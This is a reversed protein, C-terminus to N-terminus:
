LIKESIKKSSFICLYNLSNHSLLTDLIESSPNGPYGTAYAIGGELAGQAIAENGMMLSKKIDKQPITMADPM